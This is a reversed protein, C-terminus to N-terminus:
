PPPSVPHIEGTFLRYSIPDAPRPIRSLDFGHAAVFDIGYRHSAWLLPYSFKGEAGLQRRYAALRDIGVALNTRWNWVNPEYPLPSAAKWAAPKLQLLGRAEGKRARPDFNSEAQVVAYVFGPDLGGSIARPQIARWVAGPPPAPDPPGVPAERARPACGSLVLVAAACAYRM